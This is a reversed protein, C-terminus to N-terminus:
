FTTNITRLIAHSVRKLHPRMGYRLLGSGVLALLPTNNLVSASMYACLSVCKWLSHMYLRCGCIMMCCTHACQYAYRSQTYTHIYTIYHSTIFHLAICHLSNYHFTTYHLVVYHFTIYHSTIAHLTIYTHICTHIYTHVYTRLYTHLPQTDHIDHIDHIYHIYHLTLYPLTLYHLTHIYTRIYTHIHAHIYTHM